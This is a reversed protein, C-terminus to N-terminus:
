RELRSLVAGLWASPTLGYAAPDIAAGLHRLVGALEADSLGAALLDRVDAACGVVASPPSEAVFADIVDEWSQSELVWDQHFYGALLQAIEPLATEPEDLLHQRSM